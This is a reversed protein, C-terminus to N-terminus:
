AEQSPLLRSAARRALGRSWDRYWTAFNILAVIVGCLALAFTHDRMWELAAPREAAIAGSIALGMCISWATMVAAMGLIDLAALVAYRVLVSLVKIKM